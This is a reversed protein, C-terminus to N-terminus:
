NRPICRSTRTYTQRGVGLDSRRAVPVRAVGVDGPDDLCVATRDLWSGTFLEVYRDRPGAGHDIGDDDFATVAVVDVPVHAVKRRRKWRILVVDRWEVITSVNRHDTM